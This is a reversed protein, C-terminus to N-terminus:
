VFSGGFRVETNEATERWTGGPGENMNNEM